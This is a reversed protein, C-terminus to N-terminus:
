QQSSARLDKMLLFMWLPHAQSPQFGFRQYFARAGQDKAHALVARIGLSEAAQDIRQLADKLLAAGLGAGQADRSVGLRALLAVPIPYRGQGRRVRRPAHKPAVSGASLAYFGHVVEHEDCVVFVRTSGSRHAQLAYNRLWDDLAVNGSEFRTLRFTADLPIPGHLM